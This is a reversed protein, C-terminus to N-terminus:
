ASQPVCFVEIFSVLRRTLGSIWTGTPNTPPMTQGDPLVAKVLPGDAQPLQEEDGVSVSPSRRGGRRAMSDIVAATPPHDALDHDVDAPPAGIEEPL